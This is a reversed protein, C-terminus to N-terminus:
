QTNNTNIIHNQACSNCERTLADCANCNQGCPLCHTSNSYKGSPCTIPDCRNTMDSSRVLWHEAVCQTCNTVHPNYYSAVCQSCNANCNLCESTTRNLYLGPPCLNTADICSDRENVFVMAASCSCQGSTRNVTM